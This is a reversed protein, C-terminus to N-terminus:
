SVVCVVRPRSLCDAAEVLWSACRSEVPFTVTGGGITAIEFTDREAMKAVTRLEVLDRPGLLGRELRRKLARIRPLLDVGLPDDSARLSSCVERFVILVDARSAPVGAYLAGHAAQAAADLRDIVARGRRETIAAEWAREAKRFAAELPVLVSAREGPQTTLRDHSM